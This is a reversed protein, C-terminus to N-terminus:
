PEVIDPRAMQMDVKQEDWIRRNLQHAYTRSRKNGYSAYGRGAWQHALELNGFVEHGVAINLCLRGKAKANARDLGSEWARLAGDWDNVEARRSGLALEPVGRMKRYYERSLSIPMPAIKAAYAQGAWIGMQRTAEAKSILTALAQALNTATASWTNSRRFLQQDEITRNKPDYIRFGIKLTAVGEAYFEVQEVERRVGNETITRRVNRQGHTVLFDSDFIEIAALADAKYDGCIREIESWALAPPFSAGPSNGKLVIPAYRTTFRPSRRLTEAFASLTQQAAARDEGPLEGTIITELISWIGADYQSRDVLVITRIHPQIDVEAPRMTNINVHGIKCAGSLIVFLAIVPLLAPKM